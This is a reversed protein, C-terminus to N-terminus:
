ASQSESAALRCGLVLDIAPILDEALHLPPIQLVELPTVIGVGRALSAGVARIYGSAASSFAGGGAANVGKVRYWYTTGAVATADDFATLNGAVVGVQRANAGSATTGRWIEYSTASASAVWAVHVVHIDSGHSATVSTPPPPPALVFESMPVTATASFDADGSYGASIAHTGVSLRTTALAALGAKGLLVTGIVTSGDFFSISGGPAGSGPAALVTANFVIQRGRIAPNASATLTLQVTDPGVTVNLTGAMSAAYDIGGAYSAQIVHTGVSLSSTTLTATGSGNLPLTALVTAGDLFTVAGAVVGGGPAVPSVTATYAVPQGYVTAPTACVLSTVTSAQAVAQMLHVAAPTTFNGDSNYAVSVDQVGVDAFSMPPSTAWGNVLATAAGFPKGDVSFQVSGGPSGAGPAVAALTATFTIPQGVVAGPASSSVGLQGYNNTDLAASSSTAGLKPLGYMEELTRLIIYPNVATKDVGPVFLRPDGNVLTAFGGAFDHARDSEDSTVILLSNNDRAWQLYGDLHQGLWGDAGRRLADYQSPDTAYPDSVNSGHTNHLTDPIVFSVTPLTAYGAASTPFSSFPKNVDSNSLGIGANTFQAMPNYARVYLDGYAANGPDAAYADVTDGAYPLNESYGCFSYGKGADALSQALDPGGFTYHGGDDIVGQTSGSYMALYNMEGDLDPTNLGHSNAYVLGTAALQNFYPMDSYPAVAVNGIANAAHDEEMVVVVHSPRVISEAGPNASSALTLSVSAPVVVQSVSNSVSAAHTGDGGYSALIIQASQSVPIAATAFSAQGSPNLSVASLVVAGDSFTVVGSAGATVTAIFNVPQGHVSTLTSSSLTTTTPSLNSNQQTLQTITRAIVPSVSALDAVSLFERAELREIKFVKRGRPMLDSAIDRFKRRNGQNDLPLSVRFDRPM